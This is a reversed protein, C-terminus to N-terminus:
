PKVAKWANRVALSLAVAAMSDVGREQASLLGIMAKRDGPMRGTRCVPCGGPRHGILTRVADFLARQYAFKTKRRAAARVAAPAHAPAVAIRALKFAGIDSPGDGVALAIGDAGAGLQRALQALGTAKAVDVAVIDVQAEGHITEVSGQLGAAALAQEVAAVDPARRRGGADVVYARVSHRYAADVTVGPLRGVADKARAVNRLRHESLLSMSTGTAHDYIASGYEAVGGALKLSACRDKVEDLSRGTMLVPRFGHRLLARLSIASARTLSAVGIAEGELVGDVDLAVLQGESSTEVDQLYVEAFYRQLVRSMARRLSSPEGDGLRIRDWLHLTQLLLWREALVKSGTADEYAQRYIDPRSQRTATEAALEADASLCAVDFVPDYTALDINAFARRDADVKVTRKRASDGAFWQAPAMSGDVVSPREVRLVRKVLPDVLPLRAWAWGRGFAGSFLNSAAEWAAMRGRLRTSTDRPVGLAKNRALVYDITSRTARADGGAIARAFRRSSPLRDRFLVGDALGHIRPSYAGIREAVELSHEGFYGLGVGAARVDLETTKRGQRDIVRVRYRAAAHGRPDQDELEVREVSVVHWREGVLDALAAHVSEPALRDNISWEAWPLAICRYDHELAEPPASMGASLPVLLVVAERRLRQRTLTRAVRLYSGGTTPPDDVVLVAGGSSRVRGLAARQAARMPFGPRLTIAAVPSFGHAGLSAAVLPALYSGSTRVGVVVTAGQRAAPQAAYKSALRAMDDPHQDFSRFCSPLRIVSRRLSRPLGEYANLVRGAARAIAREDAAAPEMVARALLAVLADLDDLWSEVPADRAWSRHVAARISNVIRVLPAGMRVIRSPSSRLQEAVKLPLEHSSQLHDEGVQSIGAALLYANLSVGQELEARLLGVLTDCDNLLDVLRLPRARVDSPSPALLATM